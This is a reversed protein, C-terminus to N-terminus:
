NHLRSRTYLKKGRKTWIFFLFYLQSELSLYPFFFLDSIKPSERSKKKNKIKEPITYQAGKIKWQSQGGGMRGWKPVLLMKNVSQIERDIDLRLLLLM